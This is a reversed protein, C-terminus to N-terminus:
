ALVAEQNHGPWNGEGQVVVTGGVVFPCGEANRHLWLCGRGDGASDKRHLAQCSVLKMEDGSGIVEIENEPGNHPCPISKVSGDAIALAIATAGM